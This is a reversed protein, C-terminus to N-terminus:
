PDSPHFLEIRIEQLTVDTATGLTTITSFYRRVSGNAHFAVDLIPGHHAPPSTLQELRLQADFREIMSGLEADPVGGVAERRARALLAPALTEWNAVHPRLHDSSFILELVNVPSDKGDLDLMAGFLEDAAHNTRLLNWHRDMVVGPHPEHSALIRDIAATVMEAEADDLSSTRYPPAYGAALFLDNRDRLPMDLADALRDLLERSPQARGTEVFSVHRATVGSVASLGLQSM